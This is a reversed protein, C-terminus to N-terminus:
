LRKGNHVTWGRENASYLADEYNGHKYRRWEMHLINALQSDSANRCFQVFTIDM